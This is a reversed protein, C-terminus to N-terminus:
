VSSHNVMPPVSAALILDPPPRWDGSFFCYGWLDLDPPLPTSRFSSAPESGKTLRPPTSRPQTEAPSPEPFLLDAERQGSSVVLSRIVPLLSDAQRWSM